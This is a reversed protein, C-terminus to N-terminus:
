IENEIFSYFTENSIIIHDVMQVDFLTCCQRITATLEKDQESPVLNGSPHNHVLIIGTAGASLVASMILRKDVVTSTIGGQSHIYIGLVRNARNMLLISFREAVEMTDGYLPAVIRYADSASSVIPLETLKTKNGTYTVKAERIM